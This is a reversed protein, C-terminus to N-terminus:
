SKVCQKGSILGKKHLNVISDAIIRATKRLYGGSTLMVIPIRNEKCIEFVFEDRKVIGIESIRMQGLPDSDLIDTGANYVLIDPRFEKLAAKLNTRLKLMYELDEVKNGLEVKRRIALKAEKDRPFIHRNYMDMIYVEPVGLFDHQYGNGQHADLDVIMANQIMNHSILFQILLTIDAYPCFGSGSEGSCHHFGGGVNIAWGRELSLKGALISGGTQLRMPKLYAYQVLANPVCAIIPVEAIVAVNASWKLSKLYKKTHVVLLDRKQAELPKVLCEDTILEANKLNQIINRWKKADFIHFKELGLFSVNYNDDYVLPWQDERIDFYLSTM